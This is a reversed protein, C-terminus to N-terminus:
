EEEVVAAQAPIGVACADQYALTISEDRSYSERYAFFYEFFRQLLPSTILGRHDVNAGLKLLCVVNDLIGAECAETLPTNGVWNTPDVEYRHVLVIKRIHSAGKAERARRHLDTNFYEDIPEHTRRPARNEDIQVDIELGMLPAILEEIRRSEHDVQAALPSLSILSSFLAAFLSRSIM